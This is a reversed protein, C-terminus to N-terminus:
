KVMDILSTVLVIKPDAGTAMAKENMCTLQIMKINNNKVGQNWFFLNLERPDITTAMVVEKIAQWNKDKYYQWMEEFIPNDANINEPTVELGDTKLDQLAVVCDRISPYKKNILEKIGEPTFKLNEKQCIDVLFKEIDQKPPYAFHIIKCRSQIADHIKNLNNATLIFFVNHVYTEMMNRLAEQSAKLMGDFEDMFICKRVGNSSKTKAFEKVKERIVEIKRDDSSNLILSDCGLDNIIAKAMTTKGTGPSTSHFIFSQITEPNEMYKLVKEKAEGIVETVHKPRYKEQWIKDAPNMM